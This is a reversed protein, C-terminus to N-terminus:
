EYLIYREAIYDSFAMGTMPFLWALRFTICSLCLPNSIERHAFCHITRLAMTLVVMLRSIVVM